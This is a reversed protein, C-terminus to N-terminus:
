FYIYLFDVILSWADCIEGKKLKKDHRGEKFDESYFLFLSECEM